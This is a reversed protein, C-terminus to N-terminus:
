ANVIAGTTEGSPAAAFRARARAKLLLFQMMNLQMEECIQEQTQERFYFRTLAERDRCSLRRLVSLMRDIDQLHIAKKSPDDGPGLIVGPGEVVPHSRNPADEDGYAAVQKLVINRVLRSLTEHPGLDETKIASVLITFTEQVREELQQPGVRRSLFFRIGRSFVRHLEDSGKPDDDKIKAVLAQWDITSDPQPNRSRV